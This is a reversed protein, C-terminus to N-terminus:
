MSHRKREVQRKIEKRRTEGAVGRRRVKEGELMKQAINTENYLTPGQFVPKLNM